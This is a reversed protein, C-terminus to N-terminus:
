YSKKENIFKLKDCLTSTNQKVWTGITPLNQFASMELKYQLIAVYFSLSDFAYLMQKKQCFAGTSVSEKFISTFKIM